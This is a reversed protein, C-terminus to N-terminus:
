ALPSLSEAYREVAETPELNFVVQGDSQWSGQRHVFVVTAYRLNGVAEVEEMDGGAIASFSITAGSMAYLEGSVRDVAFVQDESLQCTEWKLGRPKGTAAAAALFTAELQGRDDSFQLRALERQAKLQAARGRRWLWGAALALAIGVLVIKGLHNM